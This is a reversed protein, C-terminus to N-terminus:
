HMKIKHFAMPYGRLIIRCDNEVITTPIITANLADTFSDNTQRNAIGRIIKIATLSAPYM